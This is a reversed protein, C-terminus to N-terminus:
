LKICLDSTLEFMMEGQICLAASVKFGDRIFTKLDGHEMFPLVIMPRNGLFCVGLLRLVNPHKYHRMMLGENLFEEIDALEYKQETTFCSFDLLAHESLPSFLM